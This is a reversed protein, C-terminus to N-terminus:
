RTRATRHRLVAAGLVLMAALPLLPGFPIEPIGSGPDPPTGLIADFAPTVDVPRMPNAYSRDGLDSAAASEHPGGMAFAQVGYLTQGTVVGFASAPARIVLTNGEVTGTVPMAADAHYAAGGNFWVVGEYIPSQLGDNADLKGGFFRRSGDAKHEFSLHFIDGTTGATLSQRSTSFRVVYQLRDAATSYGSAAYTALDASMRAASADALPVRAVLDTGDLVLTAGLEDLSALNTGSAANPWTADGARDHRQGQAVPVAVTPKSDLLSPGAVQRAFHV